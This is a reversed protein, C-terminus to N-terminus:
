AEVLERATESAAHAGAKPPTTMVAKFRAPALPPLVKIKAINGHQDRMLAEGRREVAVKDDAGMPSLDTTVVEVWEDQGMEGLWDLNRRAMNADRTRCVIRMPILGRLQESGFDTSSDHSGLAVAAKHKRGYRVINSLELEIEPSGTAHHAEDLVMLSEISDDAYLVQRSIAVILAYLARGIVKEVPLESKLAASELEARRPLEVGRTCFTLFRSRLDLVPLDEDFLLAGFETSAVNELGYLLTRAVEPEEAALAKGSRLHAVLSSMSTIQQEQVYDKHLLQGLLRGEPSTSSFSLLVSCLSRTVRAASAAPFLRLPDLSWHSDRLEVVTPEVGDHRTLLRGLEAWETNDSRDIAVVQGGRDFVYGSVIKLLTSKGSGNEGTVAFSGSMDAEMAGGIDMFVPSRRSSSINTGLRFGKRTGLSDTVLPMGFALHRGTVILEVKKVTPNSPVGPLAAWWLDEQYGLPTSIKFERAEYSSEILHAYEQALEPTEAGVIFVAAVDVSVEAESANLAAHYAELDESIRDLRSTGGTIAHSDGEQQKYEEILKEEARKNRAAARKAPMVNMRLVWDANVHLGDLYSIYEDDPFHFGEKPGGTLAMVVQYSAQGATAESEVKVYRRKFPSLREKTTVDSQGGEDVLPEPIVGRATFGEDTHKGAPATPDAGLGRSHSHAYIWAVEAPTSAQPKFVAPISRAIHGANKLLAEVEADSPRWTPLSLQERLRGDVSKLVTRMRDTLSKAPLPVALWYAREGVPIQELQDLALEVEELYSQCQRPDIGELMREVVSAPDIEACLGMLLAEGRLGQFLAQHSLMARQKHDGKGFGYPVGRLRWLAWVTGSTTWILNHKMHLIPNKM